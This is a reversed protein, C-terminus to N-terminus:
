RNSPDNAEGWALWAKAIAEQDGRMEPTTPTTGVISRLATFWFGSEKRVESLLFPIARSGMGIIQQYAPHAFDTRSRGAQYALWEDVLAEFKSQANPFGVTKGRIIAKVPLNIPTRPMHAVLVLTATRATNYPLFHGRSSRAVVRTLPQSEGTTEANSFDSVKPNRIQPM